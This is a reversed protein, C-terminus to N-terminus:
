GAKTRRYMAKRWCRKWHRALLDNWLYKRLTAELTEWQSTEEPYNELTQDLGMSVASLLDSMALAGAAAVSVWVLCERHTKLAKAQQPRPKGHGILTDELEQLSENFEKGIKAEGFHLTFCCGIIGFCLKHEIDTTAMVSLCRLDAITNLLNRGGPSSSPSSPSSSTPSTSGDGGALKSLYALIDIMQISLEGAMAMDNFATSVKSLAECVKISFPLSPYVCLENRLPSEITLQAIGKTAENRDKVFKWLTDYRNQM